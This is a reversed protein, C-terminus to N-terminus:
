AYSSSGTRTNCTFLVNETSAGESFRWCNAAESAYNTFFGRYSVHRDVNFCFDFKLVNNNGPVGTDIVAMDGQAQLFDCRKYMPPLPGNTMLRRRAEMM